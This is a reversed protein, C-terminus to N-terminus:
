QYVHPDELVRFFEIRCRHLDTQARPIDLIDGAESEIFDVAPERWVARRTRAGTWCRPEFLWVLPAGDGLQNAMGLDTRIFQQMEKCFPNDPLNAFHKPQFVSGKKWFSGTAWEVLPARKAVIYASWGDKGNYGYFSVTLAFVVIRSDIAPEELLANAVTTLPGGAVIVLPQNPTAKLAERIILRSGASPISETDQIRGSAPARLVHDSGVTIDPLNRLGSQRAIDLAKHADDVCHQMPYHYGQDWDWMDRTVVNGVLNARGLSAQAWLYNNDFVDFWWDNDYLIPNSGDVGEIRVAGDLVRYGPVVAGAFSILFGLGVVAIM